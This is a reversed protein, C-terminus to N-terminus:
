PRRKEDYQPQGALLTVMKPSDFANELMWHHTDWSRVENSYQTSGGCKGKPKRIKHWMSEEANNAVRKLVNM